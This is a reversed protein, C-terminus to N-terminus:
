PFVKYGYNMGHNYSSYHKSRLEKFVMRALKDKIKPKDSGTKHRYERRVTWAVFDVIQILNSYQSETFSIEPILKTSNINQTGEDSFQHLKNRIRLDQYRNESDMTIFGMNDSLENLMTEIREFLLRWAWREVFEENQKKKKTIRKKDIVISLLYIEESGLYKAFKSVLSFRRKTSIHSFNGRSSAIEDMHLEFYKDEDPFEEEKFKLVRDNLKRWKSEHVVIASLIFNERDTFNPKGSEDVYILYVVVLPFVYRLSESTLHSSIVASNTFIYM